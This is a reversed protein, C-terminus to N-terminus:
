AKIEFMGQSSNATLELGSPDGGEPEWGKGLNFEWRWEDEFMGGGEFSTYQQVGKSQRFTYAAEPSIANINGTAEGILPGKTRIELGECNFETAYTSAEQTLLLGVTPTSTGKGAIYGLEGKLANSM